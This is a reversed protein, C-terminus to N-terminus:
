INAFHTQEYLLQNFGMSYKLPFITSFAQNWDSNRYIMLLSFYVMQFSILAEVTIFKESFLFALVIAYSSAISYVGAESVQDYKKYM